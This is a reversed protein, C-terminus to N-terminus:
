IRTLKARLSELETQLKDYHQKPAARPKPQSVPRKKREKRKRGLNEFMEEGELLHENLKLRAIYHRISGITKRLELIKERKMKRLERFHKIRKLIELSEIASEVIERQMPGPNFIQVHVASSRHHTPQKQIIRKRVTKKQKYAM